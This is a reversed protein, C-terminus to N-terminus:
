DELAPRNEGAPSVDELLERAEDARDEEVWVKVPGSVFDLSSGIGKIFFRMGAQQLLSDIFPVLGASPVDFVPM